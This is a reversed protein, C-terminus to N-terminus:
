KKAEKLLQELKLMPAPYAVDSDRMARRIAIYAQTAVEIMKAQDYTGAPADCVDRGFKYATNVNPVHKPDIEGEVVLVDFSAKASTMLNCMSESPTCAAVFLVLVMAVLYKM